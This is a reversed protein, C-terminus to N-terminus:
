RNQLQFNCLSYLSLFFVSPFPLCVCFLILSLLLSHKRGLFFRGTQISLSVFASSSVTVSVAVLFTLSVSSCLFPAESLSLSLIVALSRKAGCFGEQSYLHVQHLRPVPPHSYMPLDASLFHFSYNLLDIVKGLFQNGTVCVLM